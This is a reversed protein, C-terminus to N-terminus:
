FVNEGQPEQPAYRKSYEEVEESDVEEDDEPIYEFTGLNWNVKYSLVKGGASSRSKVLEMKLVDDKKELAIIITSDQAIRDSRAIHETGVGTESTSARNQQSAAIIPIRCMVQLNKLDKSINSAREVDSKGKKDDELLSHQDVFLIDLKEKEIFARLAGVGAPGNIMKPTLVKLSGMFRTPLSDIYKKYDTLINDNGHNLSGNAIHGALTDFRYGVLRESMEGSYLGVNLGQEVAAMAMKILIFSKGIGPRAMVTALEEERDWGGIVKDLEKFGTKIYFKSFDQTREVYADYRSTDKLIDTSSLGVGTSLGEYMKKYISIAEDTDGKILINKIKNFNQILYRQNRDEYLANLLYSPSEDVDIFEFNKFRAGMTAKDPINGYEKLHDLIFSYEEKHDSFYEETLNNLTIISPDKHQIIYNLVQTQVVNM